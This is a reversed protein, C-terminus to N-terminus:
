SRVARSRDDGRDNTRIVSAGSHVLAVQDHMATTTTGSCAADRRTTDTTQQILWVKSMVWSVAVGVVCGFVVEAVKHLGHAIGISPSDHVIGAAIVVAATIPAQRWMTKIRVLYSSVIVTTALALPLVWNGTGGVVLFILGAASGVAVNVLRCTFLRRAEDPQPDSAAIMSAIAWIPNSDDIARLTHWVITTALAVNVAFRMGILDDHSLGFRAMLAEARRVGARRM